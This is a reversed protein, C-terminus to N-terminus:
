RTVRRRRPASTSPAPTEQAAGPAPATVAGRAVHDLSQILAESWRAYTEPGSKPSIVGASLLAGTSEKLISPLYPDLAAGREALRRIAESRSPIPRQASRWEEVRVLFAASCRLEFRHGKGAM